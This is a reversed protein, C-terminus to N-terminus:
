SDSWVACFTSYGVGLLLFLTVKHVLLSSIPKLYIYLFCGYLLCEHKSRVRRHKEFASINDKSSIWAKIELFPPVSRSRPLHEAKHHSCILSVPIFSHSIIHLSLLPFYFFFCFFLLLLLLLTPFRVVFGPRCFCTYGYGPDSQICIGQNCPQPLCENIDDECHSGTWGALFLLGCLAATLWPERAEVMQLSYWVSQM